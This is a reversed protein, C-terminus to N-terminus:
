GGTPACAQGASDSQTKGLPNAASICKSVWKDQECDPCYVVRDRGMVLEEFYKQCQSCYFEYIPM